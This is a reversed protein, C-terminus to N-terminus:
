YLLRLNVCLKWNIKFLIESYCKKLYIKGRSKMIAIFEEINKARDTRFNKYFIQFLSKIKLLVKEQFEWKKILDDFTYDIKREPVFREITEKRNIQVEHRIVNQCYDFYRLALKNKKKNQFEKYDHQNYEKQKDYIRITYTPSRWTVTENKGYPKINNFIILSRKRHIYIGSEM